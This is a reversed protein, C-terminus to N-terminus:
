RLWINIATSLMIALLSHDPIQAGTGTYSRLGTPPRIAPFRVTSNTFGRQNNGAGTSGSSNLYPAGAFKSANGSITGLVPSPRATLLGTGHGDPNHSLGPHSTANNNANITYTSTHVRLVTVTTLRPGFQSTAGFPAMVSSASTALDKTDSSSASLRTYESVMDTTWNTSTESPSLCSPLGFNPNPLVQVAPLPSVATTASRYPVYPACLGALFSSSALVDNDSTSWAFICAMVNSLLHDDRCFCDFDSSGICPTTVIWSNLCKPLTISYHHVPAPTLPVTDVEGHNPLVNPPRDAKPHQTSSSSTGNLLQTPSSVARSSKRPQHTYDTYDADTATIVESHDGPLTGKGEINAHYTSSQSTHFWASENQSPQVRHDPSTYSHHFTPDLVKSSGIFQSRCRFAISHISVHCDSTQNAYSRFTISKAGGCQTNHVVLGLVTCFHVAKCTSGDPMEFLCEIEAEEDCSMELKDVSMTHDESCTICPSEEIAATIRRAQFTATEWLQRKGLTDTFSWGSFYNSGYSDFPGESLGKWRYGRSQADSCEENIIGPLPYRVGDEWGIGQEHGVASVRHVLLSTALLTTKFVHMGPPRTM